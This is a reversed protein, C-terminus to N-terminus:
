EWVSVHECSFFISWSPLLASCSTHHVLSYAHFCLMQVYPTTFSCVLFVFFSLCIFGFPQEPSGYTHAWQSTVGVQLLQLQATSQLGEFVLMSSLFLLIM